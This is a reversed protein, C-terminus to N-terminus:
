LTGWDITGDRAFMGDPMDFGAASVYPTVTPQRIIEVPDEHEPPSELWFAQIVADAHDTSRGLRKRIDAKREVQIINGPDEPWKVSALEAILKPHDPLCISSGLAPNLLERMHWWAASRVQTFRQTGTADRRKTGAGASFAVVPRGRHRLVDVVGAGLGDADVISVSGPVDLLRTEVLDAVEVNDLGSFVELGYVVEGIRKAVVTKDDGFRAVDVGFVCRGIPDRDHPTEFYARWRAVAKTLWALPILGDEADGWEGLIKALYYPNHEGWTRRALEVSELSPLAEAVADPVDEDTFNPTDFASVKIVHWGSDPDICMEHFLSSSDDPNGIALITVDKGTAIARINAWMNEAIGGAEDVIILMHTAHSGQFASRAYDPPKRGFGLVYKDDPAMWRNNLLVRGPLQGVDHHKRIEGWLILSVQDASPATTVIKTENPIHVSGFWLALVAALFSKGIGAASQVAVQRNDVVARAIEAQKSWLHVGLIDRAWAVPDAAYIAHRDADAATESALWRDRLERLQLLKAAPADVVRQTSTTQRPPM